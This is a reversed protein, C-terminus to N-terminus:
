FFRYSIAFKQFLYNSVGLFYDVGFVQYGEEAYADMMLFANSYLGFADPFYLLINGNSTGSPTTIYTDVGGIKEIKGKPTAPYISGSICCTSPPNALIPNM